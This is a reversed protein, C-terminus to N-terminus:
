ILADPSYSVRSQIGGVSQDLEELGRVRESVSMCTILPTLHGVSSFKAHKQCTKAFKVPM